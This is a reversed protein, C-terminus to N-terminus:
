DYTLLPATFQQPAAVIPLLVIGIRDVVFRKTKFFFRNNIFSFWRYESDFFGLRLAIQKRLLFAIERLKTLNSLFLPYVWSQDFSLSTSLYFYRFYFNRHCSHPHLPFHLLTPSSSPAEEKRKSENEVTRGNSM